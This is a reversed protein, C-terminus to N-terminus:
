FDGSHRDAKLRRELVAGAGHLNNREQPLVQLGEAEKKLSGATSASTEMMGYKPSDHKRERM